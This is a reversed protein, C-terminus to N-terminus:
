LNPGSAFDAYDRTPTPKGMPAIPTRSFPPFCVCGPCDGDGDFSDVRRSEAKGATFCALCRVRRCVGRLGRDVSSSMCAAALLAGGHAWGYFPPAAVVSPSASPHWDIVHLHSDVKAGANESHCVLLM